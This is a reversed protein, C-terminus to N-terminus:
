MCPDAFCRVGPLGCAPEDDSDELARCDCGTCYDSFLRCDSDKRCASPEKDAICACRDESWRFGPKCLAREGCRDPEPACFQQTCVGDPPTCVGCSANCCVQGASCTTPGCLTVGDPCILRCPRLQCPEPPNCPPPCDVVCGSSLASVTTRSGDIEGLDNSGCGVM